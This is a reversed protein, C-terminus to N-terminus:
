RKHGKRRAHGHRSPRAGFEFPLVQTLPRHGAATFRVTVTVYLPRRARQVLSRYRRATRLRVEVVGPATTPLSGSALTASSVSRRRRGRRKGKRARSTVVSGRATATLRGAGPVSVDVFVAGHVRRLSASISWEPTPPMNPPPASITQLGPIAPPKLQTITFAESGAVVDSFAGYVLNTASSSFAIPGGGASFWPSSVFGNAPQGDFGLSALELTGDALNAVYLQDFSAGSLQPSILAPPSFPFVTRRTVFAVRDGEPSIAVDEIPGALNVDDFDTSAWETLRTLAATRSLGPAMNVVYADTSVSSPIAGHGYVPDQGTAPQTSLIAVTRGDASLHPTGQVLTSTSTAQASGFGNYSILSGREPGDDQRPTPNQPGDWQTDLPGPCGGPCPGVPDDGGLVRRTPAQPGDGVRRWLPEDYENPHGTPADGAAAPAQAPINIGLWAVTTGDASIAASSDGPLANATGANTGSGTSTDTVAAGSPVAAPTGALSAATQSVLTTHRTSLDRLAVQAPPTAAGTGGLLNSAGVVTFVVKTGDGSLAAGAAASSGGGPCGPMSSGAYALSRTGGDVASVLTYAGNAGPDRSMDRVYVRSCQQGAGTAPATATTTFSILRGDASISPAGADGGAVFDLAGTRLDKRYIGPVGAQSGTFAVYRGDASIAPEFAYDSEVTSSGSILTDATFDARAGSATLLGILLATIAVARGARSARSM